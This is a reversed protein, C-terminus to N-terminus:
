YVKRCYRVIEQYRKPGMLEAEYLTKAAKHVQKREAATANKMRVKARKSLAM